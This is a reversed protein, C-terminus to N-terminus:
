VDTDSEWSSLIHSINVSSSPLKDLNIMPRLGTKTNNINATCYNTYKIQNVRLYLGDNAVRKTKTATVGLWVFHAMDYKFIEHM